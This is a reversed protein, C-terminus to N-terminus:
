TRLKRSGNLGSSKQGPGNLEFGTLALGFDSPSAWKVARTLLELINHQYIYLCRPHNKINKSKTLLTNKNTSIICNRADFRYYAFLTQSNCYSLNYNLPYQHPVILLPTRLNCPGFSSTPLSEQQITAIVTAVSASSIKLPLKFIIYTGLWLQLKSNNYLYNM